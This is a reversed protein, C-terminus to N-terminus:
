EKHGEDEDKEEDKDEKYIDRMVYEAIMACTRPIHFYEFRKRDESCHNDRTCCFFWKNGYYPHDSNYHKAVEKSNSPTGEAFCPCTKCIDLNKHLEQKYDPQYGYDWPYFLQGHSSKNVKEDNRKVEKVSERFPKEYEKIHTCMYKFPYTRDPVVRREWDSADRMEEKIWLHSQLWQKHGRSVHGYDFNFIECCANNGDCKMHKCKRCIELKRKM